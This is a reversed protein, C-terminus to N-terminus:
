RVFIHLPPYKAPEFFVVPPKLAEAPICKNSRGVLFLQQLNLMSVITILIFSAFCM